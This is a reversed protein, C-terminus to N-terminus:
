PSTAILEAEQVDPPEGQEVRNRGARKARYLARDASLLLAHLDVAHSAPAAVGISVTAGFNGDASTHVAGEFALRVREAIRAADAPGADFLLCAFEEGGIRGFLDTPRIQAETVTCFARLVCDGVAHGYADNISKFRDIDFLLLCYWRGNVAARQLLRAGQHLFARRNAVGTLPDTSASRQYAAALKEKVLSSLLYAGAITVLISELIAFVFLGTHSPNPSGSWEAMLQIRTLLSLAHVVLLIIAPWRSPLGDGRSRWLEYATLVTYGADTTVKLLTRSGLDNYIEPVLMALLWVVVGALACGPLVARGDLQRAGSWLAGYAAALLANAVVISWFDAIQGRAAFLVTGVAGLGFAFSWLKLPALEPQQLWSLLLLGAAVLLVAGVLGVVTPMGIDMVHHLSLEM